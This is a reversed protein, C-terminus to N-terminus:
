RRRQGKANLLDDPSPYSMESKMLREFARMEAEDREARDAGDEVEKIAEAFKGWGENTEDAQRRLRAAERRLLESAAPRPEPVTVTVQAQLETVNEPSRWAKLTYVTTHEPTV